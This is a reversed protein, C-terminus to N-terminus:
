SFVIQGLHQFSFALDYVSIFICLSLSSLLIGFLSFTMENLLSMLYSQFIQSLLTIFIRPQLCKSSLTM